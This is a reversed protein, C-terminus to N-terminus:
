VSFLSFALLSIMPEHRPQPQGIVVCVAWGIAFVLLSRLYKLVHAAAGQVSFLHRNKV